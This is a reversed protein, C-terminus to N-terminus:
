RALESANVMQKLFPELEALQEPTVATAYFDVALRRDAQTSVILTHIEYSEVPAQEGGDATAGLVELRVQRGSGWGLEVPQSDVMKAPQPFLVAEPEQPPELEAWEVGIHTERLAQASGSPPGWAAQDDLRQWGAPVKFRLEIDLITIEM